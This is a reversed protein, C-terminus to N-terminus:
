VEKEVGQPAESEIGKTRGKSSSLVPGEVPEPRVSWATLDIFNKREDQAQRLMLKDFRRVADKLMRNPFTM